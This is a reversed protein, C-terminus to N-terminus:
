SFLWLAFIGGLIKSQSGRILLPLLTAVLSSM